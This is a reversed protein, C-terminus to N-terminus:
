RTPTSSSAAYYSSSSSSSIGGTLDAAAPATTAATTGAGAVEYFNLTFATIFGWSVWKSDDTTNPMWECDQCFIVSGIARQSLDVPIIAYFYIAEKKDPGHPPPYYDSPDPFNNNRFNGTSVTQARLGDPHRKNSNKNFIVLPWYDLKNNGKGTGIWGLTQILNFAASLYNLYNPNSNLGTTSGATAAAQHLNMLASNMQMICQGVTNAVQMFVDPFPRSAQSTPPPPTPPIVVAGSPTPPLSWTSPGNGTTYSTCLNLQGLSNGNADTLDLETFSSAPDLYPVGSSTNPQSM